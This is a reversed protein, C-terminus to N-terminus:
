NSTPHRYMAELKGLEPDSRSVSRGSRAEEVLREVLDIAECKLVPDVWSPYPLKEVDKGQINRTHNIVTKLIRTAENTICWGLLFWLEEEPVGDRLFACPAGSDLIYGAPLFRMNLRTAVLQWTLGSRGFYGRGGVGHLYWNGNKKFTLVADGDDRWYVVWKPESYIIDSSSKNYFRYDTHPIALTRPRDLPTVRVNRRTGGSTEVASIDRQMKPSLKNLRARELERALTIPDDFFDFRHTEVIEGGEIERLFLENKGITMGGTAILYDGVREKSAFYHSSTADVRWSFNGTTEITARDCADGEVIVLRSRGTKNALLILTPQVTEGSFTRLTEISVSCQDMLRRRLGEMTKITLFTDSAIFLLQGNPKLLDLSRAIFFSYTEKKLKHGDWLGYRRDLEDELHRDFTGGYPPNGVILDFSLPFAEPTHGASSLDLQSGSEAYSFFDDCRLNHSRPLAGYRDEIRRLARTYLEEDIEIGFINRTMTKDLREQPTGEHLVLFRNILAFLFAGDGFSPELVQSTPTLALLGVARCALSEPTMFQGWQRKKQRSAKAEALTWGGKGFSTLSM